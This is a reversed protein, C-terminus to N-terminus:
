GLAAPRVGAGRCLDARASRSGADSDGALSADSAGRPFIFLAYFPMWYGGVTNLFDHQLINNIVNLHTVVLPSGPQLPTVGADTGVVTVGVIVINGTIKPLHDRADSPANHLKDMLGEGMQAFSMATFDELTGRYNLTLCGHEDIPVHLERGGPQPFRISHGLVVKVQSPDLGWYLMLVQCDFSPFVHGNINVVLPM